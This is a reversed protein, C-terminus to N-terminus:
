AGSGWLLAPVTRLLIKLDGALTWDQLYQVDLRVMESFSLRNRGSVQWLGTIGPAAELRRRHWEQYLELEYPLAPRPGVLSMDGRWVNILQPLEDISFRRLIRGIAMIRPDDRMKFFAEGAGKHDVEETAPADERIWSHVYDRHPGDGADRYMTRLKLLEFPQGHRGIRTQRFLVPPGDKLWIAAAALMILPASLVILFSAVLLDFGRKLVFNLGAINSTVPGIIPVDGLLDVKFGLALSHMMWPVIWWHIRHSECLQVVREQHEWTADPMAIAVELTPWVASLEALRHPGGLLPYGRYQRGADEGNLFGVPEYHMPGDLLQDLLHHGLPNFGCIVLPIATGPQAYLRRLCSRTATRGLLVFPISLLYAFLVTLRPLNHAHVLFLALLTLLVAITCAKVIAIQERVGGNRMRYLDVLHFVLIWSAGIAVMGIALLLPDSHALRHETSYRPDHLALATAFATILAACDVAAFLAKQKQLEGAFM